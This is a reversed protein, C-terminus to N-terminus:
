AAVAVLNEDNAILGNIRPLPRFWARCAGFPETDGDIGTAGTFPETYGPMGGEQLGGSM